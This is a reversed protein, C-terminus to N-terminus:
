LIESHLARTNDLSIWPILYASAMISYLVQHSTSNIFVKRSSTLHRLNQVISTM